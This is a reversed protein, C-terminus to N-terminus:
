GTSATRGGDRLRARLFVADRHYELYREQGQRFRGVDTEKDADVGMRKLSPRHAVPSVLLRGDNAFSIFGRDLLHDISPTLLLGNDGDLREDNDSDRWPKCHSARLHEQRDVGTVRCRREIESVRARFLGQGRRALVIAERQTAAVTTDAEVARELHEEWLVIEQNPIHIRLEAVSEARAIAAVERGLLEALVLALPKPIATLYMNQKGRGNHQLPAYRAPFLPRLREIWDAPRFSSAVKHFDVDVRWGILNWNRGASGFVEPKPAEYAYSRAIGFTAIRGGAFSFVMDGPSVERMFEYSPNNRNDSNRKPSWLFGGPVEHRGTKKQNVWWYRM